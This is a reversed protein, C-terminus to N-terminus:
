GLVITKIKTMDRHNPYKVYSCPMHTNMHVFYLKTDGTKISVNDYGVNIEKFPDIKSINKAKKIVKQAALKQKTNTDEGKIKGMISALM